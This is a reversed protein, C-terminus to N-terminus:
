NNNVYTATVFVKKNKKIKAPTPWAIHRRLMKKGTAVLSVAAFITQHALFTNEGYVM